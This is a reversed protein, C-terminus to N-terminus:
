KGDLKRIFQCIPDKLMLNRLNYGEKEKNFLKVLNLLVHYIDGSPHTKLAQIIDDLFEKSLRNKIFHIKDKQNVSIM